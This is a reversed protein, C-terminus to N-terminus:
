CLTEDQGYRQYAGVSIDDFTTNGQYLALAQDLLPFLMVAGTGEGLALNGDIVPVLGLEEMVASMAPEKGKHSPLMYDTLGGFLRQATLAATAAILGDIVVPVHWIAGGLFIGTMGAIDYGGFLLLTRFTQLVESDEFDKEWDFHVTRYKDRAAAIVEIKHQLKADDLGAGRGTVQAAALNLLEGAMASSTTTNGIGMEGTALISVGNEKEEKVLAVGVAIAHLVEEPTMAPEKSFNRSGARARTVLGDAQTRVGKPTESCAMGMDVPIVAAGAAAAMRCVNSTGAALSEAVAKTVEQGSQSIGEEVIGNDSCLVLVEKKPLSVDAEGTIGAIKTVMQEFRGLGDLPKAINDWARRSLAAAKADPEKIQKKWELIQKFYNDNM